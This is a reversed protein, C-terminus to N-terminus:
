QEDLVCLVGKGLVYLVKGSAEAGIRDYIRGASWSEGVRTNVSNAVYGIHGLGEMRVMIAESDYKNDPEKVLRVPMGAELFDSGHHYDTGTVTFYIKEQETEATKEITENKKM